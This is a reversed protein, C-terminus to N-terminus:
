RHSQQAREFERRRLRDVRRGEGALFRDIEDAVGRRERLKTVMAATYDGVLELDSVDDRIADAAQRLLDVLERRPTM